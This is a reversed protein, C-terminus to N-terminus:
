SLFINNTLTYNRNYIDESRVNPRGPRRVDPGESMRVKLCGSRRVDPGESIRVNPCTFLWWKRRHGCWDDSESSSSGLMGFLDKFFLVHCGLKMLQLPLMPKYILPDIHFLSAASPVYARVPRVLEPLSLLFESLSYKNM